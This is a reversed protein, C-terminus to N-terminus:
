PHSGLEVAMGEELQSNGVTVVPQGIQLSKDTICVQGNSEPGLKVEHKVAHGDTVTYLIGAGDGPLVAESPVILGHRSEIVIIGRVYENLLLQADAAPTVYISVLRTQPDVERTVRLIKGLFAGVNDNVPEVRVDQGLHLRNADESEVGLRVVIQNQGITEVLAAGTPVIQGQQVDVRSVIGHADARLIKSGDIGRDEMSRVTIEAASLTQEAQLLDQRTALKMELRQKAMDRQNRATDRQQRAENLQLLTDPSPELELLPDGAKVQQGDVVLVRTVRSEFPVSFTETEGLAAEVTGFATTTVDITGEKIPVVEVKAVPRVGPEGSEARMGATPRHHLYGYVVCFAIGVAALLGFTIGVRRAKM